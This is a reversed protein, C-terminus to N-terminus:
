KLNIKLITMVIKLRAKLFNYFSYKFVSITKLLLIGEKLKGIAILSKGESFIIWFPIKDFHSNIYSSYISKANTLDRNPNTLNGGAMWYYGLPKPIYLFKESKKSIRLWCDYDEWSVKETECSLLDIKYILEKRVIVSSNLIGNGNLILDEFFPSKLKRSKALKKFTNQNPKNVLFLDHYILDYKETIIYKICENLKNPTWWDDSDLFALWSGNSNNIALNRSKAIIGENNIKYVKIRSDLYNSLLEVTNDISNNDVIIAEWNTYTQARLTNWPRLIKEKSHFTSTIVSILPHNDEYQHKLISSFVCNIINLEKPLSHLQVWRKRVNFIRGLYNLLPKGFTYIAYPKKTHWLKSFEEFSLKTHIPYWTYHKDIKPYFEPKTESIFFVNQM